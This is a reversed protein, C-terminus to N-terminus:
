WVVPQEQNTAGVLAPSFSGYETGESIIRSCTMTVGTLDLHDSEVRVGVSM